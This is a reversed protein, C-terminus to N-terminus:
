APALAAEAQQAINLITDDHLAAHWLMLGVPLEGPAHCPISIACGDLANVLSTNRLLLGNVRFFEEDREKGPAVAAIPPAVIPLTPSLMADFGRLAQEMGAIWARRAAFLDLYEWAMMQAGKDIRLRVRPDYRDAEGALLQRHWAYSEAASFGGGAQVTAVDKAQPLGIEEISAGADRLAKLSREFARAV